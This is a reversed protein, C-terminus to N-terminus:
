RLSQEFIQYRQELNWQEAAKESSKLFAQCKASPSAAGLPQSTCAANTRNFTDPQQWLSPGPLFSHELSTRAM